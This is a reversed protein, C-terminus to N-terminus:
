LKSAVTELEQSMPQLKKMAQSIKEVASSEEQIHALTSKSLDYLEATQSDIEKTLGEIKESLGMSRESLKKIEEAVVSFGRGLDGARVAEISANLGLMRSHQAIEHLSGLIGNIEELTTTITEVRQNLSGQQVSITHLSEGILSSSDSVQLISSRLGEALLSIEEMAVDEAEMSLGLTFVGIVERGAEDFIPTMVAKFAVGYVEKPVKEILVRKERKVKHEPDDKPVRQGVHIGVDFTDGRAYSLFKEGDSVGVVCDRGIFAKFLPTAQVLLDRTRVGKLQM